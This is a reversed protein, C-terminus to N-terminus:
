FQYYVFRSSGDLYLISLVLLAAVFLAWAPSLSFRIRRELPGELTQPVDRPARPDQGTWVKEFLRHTAPAFWIIAAAIAVTLV